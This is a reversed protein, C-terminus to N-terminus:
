NNLKLDTRMKLAELVCPVSIHNYYVIVFVLKKSYAVLNFIDIKFTYNLNKTGPETPSSRYPDPVVSAYLQFTARTAYSQQM